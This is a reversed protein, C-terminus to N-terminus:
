NPSLGPTKRGEKSTSSSLPLNNKRTDPVTFSVYYDATMNRLRCYPHMAEWDSLATDGFEHWSGECNCDPYIAPTQCPSPNTHPTFSFFDDDTQTDVLSCFPITFRIHFWMESSRISSCQLTRCDCHTTRFRALSRNTISNNEGRKKQVSLYHDVQIPRNTTPM